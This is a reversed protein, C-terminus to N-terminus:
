EKFWTRVLEVEFEDDLPHENLFSQFNDWAELVDNASIFIKGTFIYTKQKNKKMGAMDGLDTVNKTCVKM